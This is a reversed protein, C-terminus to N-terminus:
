VTRDLSRLYMGSIILCSGLWDMAIDQNRKITLAKPITAWALIATMGSLIASILFYWHAATAPLYGATIFGGWFGLPAFGSYIASHHQTLGRGFRLPCISVQKGVITNKRRGVDYLRSLIAFTAPMFSALALGQMARACNLVVMSSTLGPVLTWITLWVTGFLFMWYGGFMDSLRACILLMASMTLSLLSAPWMASTNSGVGKTRQQRAIAPLQLAFGSILYEALFQTMCLAACFGCETLRDPWQHSRDRRDPSM